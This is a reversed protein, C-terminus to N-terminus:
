DEAEDEGGTNSTNRPLGPASTGVDADLWLVWDQDQLARSLLHNRSKALTHRRQEQSGPDWREKGPPLRYGFDKRWLRASAFSERLREAVAEYKAATQDRSDSELMGLSLLDHPYQLSQLGRLYNEAEDAADKIPTLILVKPKPSM